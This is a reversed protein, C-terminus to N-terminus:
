KKLIYGLLIGLLAVVVVLAVPFGNQKKSVERRLLEQM